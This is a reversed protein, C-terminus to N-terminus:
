VPFTSTACCFSLHHCSVFYLDFTLSCLSVLLVVYPTVHLLMVAGRNPASIGSRVGSGSTPTASRGSGTHAPGRLLTCVPANWMSRRLSILNLQCHNGPVCSGTLWHAKWESPPGPVESLVKADTKQPSFYCSLNWATARVNLQPFPGTASTM